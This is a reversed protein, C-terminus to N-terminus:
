FYGEVGESKRCVWETRTEVGWSETVTERWGVLPGKGLVGRTVLESCAGCDASQTMTEYRLYETKTPGM